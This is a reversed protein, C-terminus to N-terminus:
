NVKHRAMVTPIIESHSGREHNALGGHFEPIVWSKAWHQIYGRLGSAIRIVSNTPTLDQVMCALGVQM